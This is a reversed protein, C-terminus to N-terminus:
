RRRKRWNVASAAIPRTAAWRRRRRQKSWTEQLWKSDTAEQGTERLCPLAFMAFMAFEIKSHSSPPRRVGLRLKAFSGSGPRSWCGKGRRPRLPARPREVEECSKEGRTPIEATLLLVPGSRRTIKATRWCPDSSSNSGEVAEATTPADSYLSGLAEHVGKLIASGVWKGSSDKGGFNRKERLNPNLAVARAPRPLRERAM